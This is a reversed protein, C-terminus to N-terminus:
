QARNEPRNEAAHRATDAAIYTKERDVSARTEAHHRATEAQREMQERALEADINAGYQATAADIVNKHMGMGANIQAVEVKTRADLMMKELDIQMERMKLRMDAIAKEHEMQLRQMDLEAKAQVAMVKPDPPAQQGQQLLQQVEEPSAGKEEAEEAQLVHQPMSARVRKAIQDAMPWDQAKAVMDLILPATDPAAQLFAIM